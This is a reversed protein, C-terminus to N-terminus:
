KETFNVKCLFEFLSEESSDPIIDEWKPTGVDLILPTHNKMYVIVGLTYKKRDMCGYLGKTFFYDGKKLPHGDLLMPAKFVQKIWLDLVNKEKDIIKVRRPDVYIETASNSTVLMWGDKDVKVSKGADSEAAYISTSIIISLAVALQKLM